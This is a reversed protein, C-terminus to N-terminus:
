PSNKRGGTERKRGRGGKGARCMAPTMYCCSNGIDPLYNKWRHPTKKRGLKHKKVSTADALHQRYIIGAPARSRAWCFGMKPQELQQEPSPLFPNLQCSCASLSFSLQNQKKKKKEQDGTTEGKGSLWPSTKWCAFTSFPHPFLM